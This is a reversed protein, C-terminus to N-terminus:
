SMGSPALAIAYLGDPSDDTFSSLSSLGEEKFKLFGSDEGFERLGSVGSCSFISSAHLFDWEINLLVGYTPLRLSM